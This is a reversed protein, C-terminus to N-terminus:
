ETTDRYEPLLDIKRRIRRNGLTSYSDFHSIDQAAKPIEAYKSPNNFARLVQELIMECDKVIDYSLGYYAGPRSGTKLRHFLSLVMYRSIQQTLESAADEVQLPMPRNLHNTPQPMILVTRTTQSNALLSFETIGATLGLM